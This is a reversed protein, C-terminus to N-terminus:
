LFRRISSDSFDREDFGFFTVLVLHQNFVLQPM